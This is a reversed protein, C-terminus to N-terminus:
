NSGGTEGGTGREMEGSMAASSPAGTGVEGCAVAEETDDPSLYVNLAHDAGTIDGFSVETATTSLGSSGDVNSLPLVVEGAEGCNGVRLEAPHVGGEPTGALTLTVITQAEYAAILVSGSVGSDGQALIPYRVSQAASSSYSLAGTASGGTAGGGTEAGAVSGGTEDGGAMEFDPPTLVSDILYVVGNSAEINVATVAAQGVGIQTIPLPSGQVTSFETMDASIDATAFREPVVHYTLIQQLADPNELLAELQGQPLKDFASNVPAFLTFPGEGALTETLGAAEVAQVLTSLDANDQAVELITQAAALSGCALLCVLVFRKLADTM